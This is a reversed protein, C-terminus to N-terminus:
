CTKIWLAMCLCVGNWHLEATTNMLCRCFCCVIIQKVYCGSKAPVPNTVFVNQIQAYTVPSPVFTMTMHPFFFFSRFFCRHLSSSFVAHLCFYSSFLPLSLFSDIGTAASNSCRPRSHPNITNGCRKVPFSAFLTQTLPAIGDPACLRKAMQFAQRGAASRQAPEEERVQICLKAASSSREVRRAVM